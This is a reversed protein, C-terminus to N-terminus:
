VSNKLRGWLPSPYHLDGLNCLAHVRENMGRFLDRVTTLTHMCEVEPLSFDTFPSSLIHHHWPTALHWDPYNEDLFREPPDPIWLPVGHFSARRLDFGSRKRVLIRQYCQTYTLLSAGDRLFFVLDLDLSLGPWRVMLRCPWPDPEYLVVQCGAQELVEKVRSATADPYFLGLDLDIDAPFLRGERVLGLLAGFCVFPRLGARELVDMAQKLVNLKLSPDIVPIEAPKALWRIPAPYRSLRHNPHAALHHLHARGIRTAEDNRGAHALAELLFNSALGPRMGRLVSRYLAPFAESARLLGKATGRAIAKPVARHSM